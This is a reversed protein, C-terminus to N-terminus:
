PRSIPAIDSRFADLDKAYGGRLRAYYDATNSVGFARNLLDVELPTLRGSPNCVYVGTAAVALFVEDASRSGHEAMADKVTATGQGFNFRLESWLAGAEDAMAAAEGRLKAPEEPWSPEIPTPEWAPMPAPEQEPEPPLGFRKPLAGPPESTGMVPEAKRDAEAQAASRRWWVALVAALIWGLITWGLLLDLVGVIILHRGRLRGFAALLVPAVYLGIFILATWAPLTQPASTAAEM